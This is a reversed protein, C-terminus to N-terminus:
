PSRPAAPPVPLSPRLEGGIEQGAVGATLPRESVVYPGLVLADLSAEGRAPWADAPSCAVSGSPARLARAVVAPIGTSREFASLLTRFGRHEAPIPTVPLPREPHAADALKSRWPARVSLELLSSCPLDVDFIEGAREAAVALTEGEASDPPADPSPARLVARSGATEEGFDLRGDLWGIRRGDAVLDAAARPAADRELEDLTLGQSRLFTRIQAANYSPGLASGIRADGNGIGQTGSKRRWAVLAAGLAAAGSGPAPGVWARAFGARQRLRVNAARDLAGAGGLGLATAGTEARLSSAAAEADTSRTAGLFQLAGDRGIFSAIGTDEIVLVAAELFPSAHYTSAAEALGADVEDAAVDAQLERRLADRLTPQRGLWSSLRGSLSSAPRAASRHAEPVRLDLSGAASVVDLASAGIKGARLCYAVANTPFSRDGRRGSLVDECVAALVRGDRVLCAASPRDYASIGLVDMADDEV